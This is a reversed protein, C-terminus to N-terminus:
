AIGFAARLTRLVRTRQQAFAEPSPPVGRARDGITREVADLASRVVVARARDHVNLWAEHAVGHYRGLFQYLTGAADPEDLHRELADFLEAMLYVFAERFAAKVPEAQRAALATEIRVAFRTGHAADIRRCEGALTGSWRALQYDAKFVLGPETPRRLWGRFGGPKLRVREEGEYTRAAVDFKAYPFDVLKVLVLYDRTLQNDPVEYVDHFLHADATAPVAALLVALLLVIM